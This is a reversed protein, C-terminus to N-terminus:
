ARRTATETARGVARVASAFGLSAGVRGRDLLLATAKGM